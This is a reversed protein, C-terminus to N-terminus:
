AFRALTPPMDKLCLAIRRPKNFLMSNRLGIRHVAKQTTAKHRIASVMAVRVMMSM